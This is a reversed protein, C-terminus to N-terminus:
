PYMRKPDIWFLIINAIICTLMRKSFNETRFVQIEMRAITSDPASYSSYLLKNWLIKKSQFIGFLHVRFPLDCTVNCM